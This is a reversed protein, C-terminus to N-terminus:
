KLESELLKRMEDRYNNWGRGYMKMSQATDQPPMKELLERALESRGSQKGLNFEKELRALEVNM